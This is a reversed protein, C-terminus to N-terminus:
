AQVTPINKIVCLRLPVFFYLASRRATEYGFFRMTRLYAPSSQAVRQSKLDEERRQTKQTIFIFGM